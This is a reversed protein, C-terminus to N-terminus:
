PTSSAPGAARQAGMETAGPRRHCLGRTAAPLWPMRAPRRSHGGKRGKSKEPALKAAPSRRLLQSAEEQHLAAARTCARSSLDQARQQTLWQKLVHM